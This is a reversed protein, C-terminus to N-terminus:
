SSRSRSRKAKRSHDRRRLCMARSRAATASGGVTEAPSLQFSSSVSPGKRLRHLSSFAWSSGYEYLGCCAGTGDMRSRDVAAGAAASWACGPVGRREEELEPKDGLTFLAEKCGAAKGQRAIEVVEDISLYPKVGARPAHAFTCYHCVDRCLQTLPIFVKRSYSIVDHHAADRRRAAARLLEDLDNLEILGVAQDRTLRRDLPFDGLMDM